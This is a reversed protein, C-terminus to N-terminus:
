AEPENLQIETPLADDDEEPTENASVAFGKVRINVTATKGNEATATITAKGEGAATVTGTEDVTAVNPDSTQWTLITEAQKPTLKVTITQSEGVKM